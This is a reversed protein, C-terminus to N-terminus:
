TVFGVGAGLPMGERMCQHGCRFASGLDGTHLVGKIKIQPQPSESCQRHARVRFMYCCASNLPRAANKEGGMAGRQNLLWLAKQWQSLRGNKAIASSISTVTGCAGVADPTSQVM